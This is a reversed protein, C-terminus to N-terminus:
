DKVFTYVEEDSAKKLFTFGEHFAKLDQVDTIEKEAMYRVFRGRAQKALTSASVLNGNRNQVFRITIMQGPMVYPTIMKAYEDSALCILKENWVQAYARDKWFDYLNRYGAVELHTNFDLRYTVIGDTPRLIGYFASLILLNHKLYERAQLSLTEVDLNKYQMGTYRQWAPMLNEHLNMKQYRTQNVAAIKVSCSFMDQLQSLSKTKMVDLLKQTESLFVPLTEYEGTGEHMTKAPSILIKM